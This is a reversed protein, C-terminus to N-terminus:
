RALSSDAKVVPVACIMSPPQDLQRSEGQNEGLSPGVHLQHSVAGLACFLGRQEIGAAPARGTPRSGSM